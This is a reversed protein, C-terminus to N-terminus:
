EMERLRKSVWFALASFARESNQRESFSKILTNCCATRLSRAPRQPSENIIEDKFWLRTKAGSAKQVWQKGRQNQAACAEQARVQAANRNKEGEM